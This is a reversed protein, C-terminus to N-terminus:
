IPVGADSLRINYPNLLAQLENLYINVTNEFSSDSTYKATNMITVLKSNEYYASYMGGMTGKTMINVSPTDTTSMFLSFMTNTATDNIVITIKHEEDTTMMVTRYNNPTITLLAGTSTNIGTTNILKELREYASGQDEQKQETLYVSSTSGDWDVGVGFAESIARVPVLTREDIICAPSDLAVASSNVYMTNDNIKLTINTDGRKASVTQTSGDWDVSAGLAEFIARLPVMTRENIIQPPVDFSIENNNLYVSIGDVKGTSAIPATSAQSEFHINASNYYLSNNTIRDSNIDTWETESGGYYIDTINDCDMFAYNEITTVSKPITVSKLKTCGKFASEKITTITDPIVVSEMNVCNNFGYRDIGTVKYGSITSPITVNGKLSTNGKDDDWLVLVDQCNGEDNLYIWMVNDDTKMDEKALASIGAPSLIATVLVGCLIKKLTQM